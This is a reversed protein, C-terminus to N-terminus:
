GFCHVLRLDFSETEEKFLLKKLLLLLLKKKWLWRDILDFSVEKFVLEEKFSLDQLWRDFTSKGIRKFSDSTLFQNWRKNVMLCSKYSEYDLYLFIKELIHPVNRKFLLDFPSIDM